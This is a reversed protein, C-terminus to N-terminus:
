CERRGAIQLFCGFTGIWSEDVADMDFGGYERPNALTLPYITDYCNQYFALLSYIAVALFLDRNRFVSSYGTNNNYQLLLQERSSFDKSPTKRLIASM